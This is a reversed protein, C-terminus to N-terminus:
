ADPGARFTRVKREPGQWALAGLFGPAPELLALRWSETTGAEPVLDAVGTPFGEADLDFSVRDLGFAIGEGLAKLVAEKCTWLRLFAATRTGTPLREIADAEARSFYRRALDEIEIRRDIREIDVGLPQRRAIAILVHDKAHSLNFDLDPLEPAFPKGRETRVIQPPAYLNAYRTLLRALLVQTRAAVTRHDPAGDIALLWLHIEDDDLPGPAAITEFHDRGIHRMTM